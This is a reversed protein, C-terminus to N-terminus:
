FRLTLEFPGLSSKAASSDKPVGLAFLVVSTVLAAAGVSIAITSGLGKANMASTDSEFQGQSYGGVPDCHTGGGCKSKISASQALALGGLVAGAVTSAGGIGLLVFAPARNIRPAGTTPKAVPMIMDITATEHGGEALHIERVVQPRGLADVRLVYTGPNVNIKEGSLTAGDLTMRAKGAEIGKVEVRLWPIKPKLESLEKGADVHAKVFANAADPPLPEALIAEYIARAELLKGLRRQCRAIFIAISPAHFLADAEQFLPYAEDFRGAEYLTLAERAKTRAQDQAAVAAGKGAQGLALAPALLTLSFVAVRLQPAFMSDGTLLWVHR